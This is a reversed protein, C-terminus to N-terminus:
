APPPGPGRWGNTRAETEVRGHEGRGALDKGQDILSRHEQGSSFPEERGLPFMEAKRPFRCYLFNERLDLKIGKKGRNTRDGNKEWGQGRDQTSPVRQQACTRRLISM